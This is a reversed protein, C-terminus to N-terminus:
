WSREEKLSPFPCKWHSWGSTSPIRRGSFAPYSWVCFFGSSGHMLHAPLRAPCKTAAHLGKGAVVADGGKPPFAGQTDMGPQRVRYM